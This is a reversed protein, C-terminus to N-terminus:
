PAVACPFPNVGPIGSVFDGEEMIDGVTNPAGIVGDWLWDSMPVGEVTGNYLGAGLSVVHVSSVVSTLYYQIGNLDRTDCVSSRLENIWQPTSPFFTTSVQTSDNQNTLILFQQNPVAKLRPATAEYLVPGVACNDAFCYPPLTSAAGWVIKLLGGLAGLGSGPDGSDLALGADPFATTQPWQVDDLVFHYNFLTGFGGASWGGFAVVMQDPRYGDGGEQDLMRWLLNRVYEVAARVNVSGYRQIAFSSFPQTVGGGAFVDQTCYPLFVKTWNAFPNQAPDNSMIGSTPANDSLAEFLGPSNVWRPACDSELFCAGGGQMGIVVRDLPFGDPALRIQFAYPSGDGCLTGWESGDLVVQVYQGREPTAGARNPGCQLFLSATDENTTAAVCDAQKVARSAYQGPTIAIYDRELFIGCTSLVAIEAASELAEVDADRQVGDCSGSALCANTAALVDDILTSATDHAFELCARANADGSAWVAGHPGGFTRAALSAAESTCSVQLRDVLADVSLSQYQGDVCSARVSGDLTALAQAISPDNSACPADGNAYCDSWAANVEFLCTQTATAVASACTQPACVGASCVGVTTGDDCETGDPEFPQDGLSCTDAGSITWTDVTCPDSDLETCIRCPVKIENGQEDLELCTSSCQTLGTSLAFLGGLTFAAALGRAVLSLRAM